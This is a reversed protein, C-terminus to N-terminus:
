KVGGDIDAARRWAHYAEVTHVARVWVKGAQAYGRRTRLRVRRDVGPRASCAACGSELLPRARAGERGVFYWVGM